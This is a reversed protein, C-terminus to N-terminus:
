KEEKDRNIIKCDLSNGSIHKLSQPSIHVWSRCWKRKILHPLLANVFIWHNRRLIWFGSVQPSQYLELLPGIEAAFASITGAIMVVSKKQRQCYNPVTQDGGSLWLMVSEITKQDSPLANYLDFGLSLNPLLYADKNIEEIAFLFALVYYYNEWGDLSLPFFLSFHDLWAIWLCNSLWALFFFLTQVVSEIWCTVQGPMHIRYLLTGVTRSSRLVTGKWESSALQMLVMVFFFFFTQLVNHIPHPPM